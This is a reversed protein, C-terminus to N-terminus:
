YRKIIKERYVIKGSSDSIKIFYFGQKLNGTNISGRKSFTGHIITRGLADYVDFQYVGGDSANLNLNNIFPNPFVKVQSVPPTNNIGVSTTDEIILPNPSLPFTLNSVDMNTQYGFMDIISKVGTIDGPLSTVGWLVDSKHGNKWIRVHGVPFNNQTNFIYAHASDCQSFKFNYLRLTYVSLRVKMSDVPPGTNSFLASSGITTTDNGFLDYFYRSVNNALGWLFFKTYISAQEQEPRFPLGEPANCYFGWETVWIPIGLNYQIIKNEFIDYHRKFHLQFNYVPIYKGDNSHMNAVDLKPYGNDLVYNWWGANGTFEGGNVLECSSCAAKMARRTIDLDRLYLLSDYNGCPGEPENGFEWYHIPQTLGPMDNYGDKDYREVLHQVFNFYATTDNDCVPGSPSQNLFFYDGGANYIQCMPDGTRCYQAFDNYPIITGVLGINNRNAHRVTSDCFEYHIIGPASEIGGWPMFTPSRMMSIGIKRGLIMMRRLRQSAMMLDNHLRITDNYYANMGNQDIFIRSPMPILMPGMDTFLSSILSLNQPLQLNKLWDAALSATPTEYITTDFNNSSLGNNYSFRVAVSDWGKSYMPAPFWQFASVLTGSALRILSPVGSSDQFMQTGNFNTGDTGSIIKLPNNWPGPNQGGAHQFLLYILLILGAIEKKM